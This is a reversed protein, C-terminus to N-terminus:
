SRDVERELQDLLATLAALAADDTPPPGHLVRAVDDRPRGTARAVADALAPGSASRPLGVRRALRDAAGARLAAAAHGQARARRYLRGRGYTAEVARVEVPLDEAVVPGLRRVRWAVAALVVAVALLTVARAPSPLLDFLSGGGAADDAPSSSVPLLWLLDATRGLTRLALAANGEATVTGNTVLDSSGLVDVRSGDARQVVVHAGVTPDEALPFCVTASGARAAPDLTYTSGSVAITGAAVADPAECTAVLPVAAVTGTTSARVAGDTLREVAEPDVAVLVLDAGSAALADLTAAHLPADGLVAVTTGPRAHRAVEAASTVRRVDVGQRGLVQAVARAGDPGPNDVHLPVSSTRPGLLTAALAALVIVVVVGLPWRWTRWRAASRSRLSTGDGTVDHGAVPTTPAPTADAVASTSPPAPPAPTM